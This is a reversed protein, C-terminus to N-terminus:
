PAFAAQIVPVQEPSLAAMGDFGDARGALAEARLGGLGDFPADLAAVGAARSAILALDRALRVPGSLPAARLALALAARTVVLGVLRASAGCYSPLALVAEPTETAFALIRLAGDALGQRAEEVALRAGLRQVDAGGVARALAVGAPRLRVAAALDDLACPDDFPPVRLYLTPGQGRWGVAAAADALVADAGSAMARAFAASDGEPVNLLARM